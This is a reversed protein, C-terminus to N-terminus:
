PGRHITPWPQIEGQSCYNEVMERMLLGYKYVITSLQKKIGVCGSEEQGAVYSDYSMISNLTSQPYAAAVANM